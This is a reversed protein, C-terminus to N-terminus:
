RTSQLLSQQLATFLSSAKSKKWRRLENPLGEYNEMIAELIEELVEMQDADLEVTYIGSRRVM